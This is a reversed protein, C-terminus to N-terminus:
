PQAVTPQRIELAEADLNVDDGPLRNDWDVPLVSLDNLSETLDEEVLGPEAGKPAETKSGDTSQDTTEKAHKTQRMQLLRSRLKPNASFELLTTNIKEEVLEKAHIAMGRDLLINSFRFSLWLYLILSKHLLELDVLYTRDGSIPQDLVDLPIEALDAITVAKRNAICRALAKVVRKGIETRTDVPAAALICSQVVNLGKVTDICGAVNRQDRTDCLFYRPHILVEHQARQLLYEFPTGPPLSNAFTDLFETPPHLGAAKIPDPEANLATQIDYLDKEDLCTVLGVNSQKVTGKFSSVRSEQSDILKTEDGDEKQDQNATRYRGARGAIQKIQSVSLKV